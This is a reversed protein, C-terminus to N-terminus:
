AIENSIGRCNEEALLVQIPHGGGMAVAFDALFDDETEGSRHPLFYRWGTERCM